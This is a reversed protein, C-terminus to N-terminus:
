AVQRSQGKGQLDRQQLELEIRAVNYELTAIQRRAGILIDRLVLLRWELKATEGKTVDDM